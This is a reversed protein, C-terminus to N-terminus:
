LEHTLLYFPTDDILSFITNNLVSLTKFEKNKFDVGTVMHPM